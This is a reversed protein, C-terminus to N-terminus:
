TDLSHYVQGPLFSSLVLPLGRIMAEAITGPGAKTVLCDSAGMYEDINNVFGKVKVDINKPWKFCQLQKFVDHNHGCIAIIQIKDKIEGLKKGIERTIEYLGGVGDGGGMILVTKANSALDLNERLKDKSLSPKWFSPRVPLGRTVIKKPEIGIKLAIKKVSESPVFILDARKDFWTPHAGGLDTVVTIFPIMSKGNLREKNMESVISLPMLQCLPHVSVVVDPKKDVIAKRFSDYCVVKSYIETFKKTPPFQGYEYFARWLLPHKALFRYVPVMTNFPWKGHDTWIDLISVDVKSGHIDKIAQDIAQASARHGGGTDCILILIRKKDSSGGTMLLTKVKSFRKFNSGQHRSNLYLNDKRKIKLLQSMGTLTHKNDYIVKGHLNLCHEYIKRLTQQIRINKLKDPNINSDINGRIRTIHDMLNNSLWPNCGFVYINLYLLIQITLFMMYRALM